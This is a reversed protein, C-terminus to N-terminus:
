VGEAFHSPPPPLRPPPQRLRHSRTGRRREAAARGGGRHVSKSPWLRFLRVAIQEVQPQAIKFIGATTKVKQEIQSRVLRSPWLMRIWGSERIGDALRLRIMTDPFITPLPPKQAYTGRGVLHLSGNGRAMFFDGEQIWLDDVDSDTLPLYRADAYDFGLNSMASLRLARVGPPNDSGKISIGNCLPQSLLQDITAWTWGNPLKQLNNNDPEAPETYKVRGTWKKRREALIRELGFTGSEFDPTPSLAKSAGAGVRRGASASSEFDLIRKVQTPNDRSKASASSKPDMPLSKQCLEAETPVLRGECAAKLVSARYRKLNAQARKLGAIGADLRTFQKEGFKPPSAANNTPLPPLDFPM